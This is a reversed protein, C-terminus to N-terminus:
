ATAEFAVSVLETLHEHKGTLCTLLCHMSLLGVCVHACPLDFASAFVYM